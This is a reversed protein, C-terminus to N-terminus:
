RVFELMKKWFGSECPYVDRGAIGVIIAGHRTGIQCYDGSPQDPHNVGVYFLAEKPTMKYAQMNASLSPLFEVKGKKTSLRLIGQYSEPIFLVVKGNRSSVDLCIRPRDPLLPLINVHIDGNRTSVVASAKAGRGTTGVDIAIKGNRSRFSAQSDGLLKREARSPKCLRPAAPDVYFTGRIDEHKTFLHLQTLTPAPLTVASPATTARQGWTESYEPPKESSEEKEHRMLDIVTM